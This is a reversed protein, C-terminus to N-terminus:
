LHFKAFYIARKTELITQIHALSNSEACEKVALSTATGVTIQNYPCQFSSEPNWLHM